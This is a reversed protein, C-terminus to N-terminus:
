RHGRPWRAHPSRFLAPQRRVWPSSWRCYKPGPFRDAILEELEQRTKHAAAAPLETANEPKLWVGLLLLGSLSLRGDALMEFIVPYERAKRAARIRKHAVDDSFRLEHICYSEMSPYGVPAYLRRLDMEALHALLAATILRDKAAIKGLDRILEADGPAVARTRAHLVKSPPSDYAPARATNM